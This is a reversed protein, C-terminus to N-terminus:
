DIQPGQADRTVEIPKALTYNAVMTTANHFSTSRAYLLLFSFGSFSGSRFLFHFPTAEHMAM